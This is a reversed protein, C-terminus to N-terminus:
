IAAPGAPANPVRLWHGDPLCHLDLWDRSADIGVVNGHTLKDM